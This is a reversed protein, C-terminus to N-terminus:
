KDVHVDVQPFPISIGADDFAAKVQEHLDYYLAWYHEHTTWVRVHLIVASDALAGIRVIPAPDMIVQPHAKLLAQIQAKAAQADADYAIGFELDLRRKPDESYNLIVADAVKRNPIFVATGDPRILKTQLMSIREVTGDIGDFSVFDGKKLPKSFLLIFGGAVNSLSDQLALGIALGMTGIVTIISTMPVGVVSLVIVTVLVYLVARLLSSLFGTATPDANSRRLTREVIHLILRTLLVGIALVIAAAILSPLLSRVMAIFDSMMSSVHETQEEIAESIQNETALELTTLDATM